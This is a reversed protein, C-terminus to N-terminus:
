NTLEKTKLNTSSFCSATFLVLDMVWCVLLSLFEYVLLSM